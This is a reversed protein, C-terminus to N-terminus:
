NNKYSKDLFVYRADDKADVAKSEVDIIMVPPTTDNAEAAPWQPLKGGNPNGTIIFNAFYSQMTESVKFDDQTWAYDKVLGLNGMCYEIECAHPAGVAPPMQPANSDRQITGGAFGSEKSHDVLPPRLKSYLYRYVPQTSNKRHLDFWKWTSYSIFRDSGLATASFEVEKDSGHPYLKLVEEADVPYVEKVKRTFNEQTYPLGQMFAMGPIEASNWGLLLPVQAQEKAKFVDSISKTLFYGDIVIPFGFRQSATYIEYVERTSLARLQKLSPFGAKTAFDLGTKEGDALPVPALTPNIGAGSEGIAGAILNKSLPSAM